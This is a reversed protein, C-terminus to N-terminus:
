HVPFGSSFHDVLQGDPRRVVILAEVGDITEVLALGKQPGMVMLATALGDAFVCTSALVSASVVGNKVPYGSRPDLVHSYTQGEVEFFHRYDGSTALAQKQVPLSRYVADLAAEKKPTNIGVRWPKGDMRHGAGYVEGGIEVLYDYIGNQEIVTAIADVGYGKAISGFDLVVSPKQKQLQGEVDLDISGFDVNARLREIEEAPPLDSRSRSRGFGWLDVLPMITGDWAGDTLRYLTRGVAFVQGFDKSPRFREDAAAVANFRNLESDPLFASMSANIAELRQQIQQQLTALLDKQTTVVKIQYITGMTRGRLVYEQRSGCAMLFLLTGFLLLVATKPRNM